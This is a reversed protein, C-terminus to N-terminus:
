LLVGKLSHIYAKEIRVPATKGLLVTPGSFNVIKNTRTRGMWEQSSRKSTGEVLVTQVTGEMTQNKSLTVKKQYTQLERLRRSKEEENVQNSFNSATTNPRNSYKFSFMDDLQVARILDMTEDFDAETEGPFGVIVDSTIAIDPCQQRLQAIKELYAERTYRRNMKELTRNSGAQVPLHIHECLNSIQGFCDILEPSLDKPHSTTFRIRELGTVKGLLHLLSAFPMEGTRNQGYSNVNQGLLLIEKVGNAALTEVESLIERSPRSEEPGRVFPVVCYACYNNCGQMITVSAKVGQSFDSAMLLSKLFLDGQDMEIRSLRNKGRRVKEILGPLQHIMRTGFVLDLHPVKELLREGEQQAVCGGVGIVLDPNQNKLRKLRGLLSYTKEEAKQRVSCTNVLILDAEEMKQTVQYDASLLLQAITQSDRENMQCGFTAIHVQKM